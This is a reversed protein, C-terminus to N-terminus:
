ASGARATTCPTRSRCTPSPASSSTGAPRRRVPRAGQRLTGPPGAAQGPGAPLVDRRHAHPAHRLGRGRPRPLRPRPPPAAVRHRLQQLLEVPRHLPRPRVQHRRGRRVPARVRHPHHAAARGRGHPRLGAQVHRGLLEPRPASIWRAGGRFYEKCLSKYAHHEFYRSRWGMPAEIIQDGVILLVDRPM